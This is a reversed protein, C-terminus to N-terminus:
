LCFLINRIYLISVPIFSISIQMYSIRIQIYSISIGIYLTSIQIYSIGIRIYLNIQIYSIIMQYKRILINYLPLLKKLISVYNLTKKQSVLSLCHETLIAQLLQMYFLSINAIVHVQLKWMLSNYM